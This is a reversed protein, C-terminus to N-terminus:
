PVFQTLMSNMSALDNRDFVGSLPITPIGEPGYWMFWYVEADTGNEVVHELWLTWGNNDILPEEFVNGLTESFLGHRNGKEINTRYGRNGCSYPIRAGVDNELRHDIAM